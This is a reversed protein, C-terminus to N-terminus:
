GRDCPTGTIDYTSVQKDILQQWTAVPSTLGRMLTAGSSSFSRDLSPPMTFVRPNAAVQAKVKSLMKLFGDWEHLAQATSLM